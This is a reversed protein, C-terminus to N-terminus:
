TIVMYDKHLGFNPLKSYKHSGFHGDEGTQLYKQPESRPKLTLTVTLNRDPQPIPYTPLSLM